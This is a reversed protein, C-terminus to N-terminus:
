GLVDRVLDSVAVCRERWVVKEDATRHAVVTLQHNVTPKSQWFSWAGTDLGTRPDAALLPALYRDLPPLGRAIGAGEAKALAEKATWLTFFLERRREEPERQLRNVELATFSTRAISMADVALRLDEVDIGIPNETTVTAAVIKAAHAVNFQLSCDLSTRLRPKGRSMREFTWGGSPATAVDSLMHRLLTRGTAFLWQDELRRRQLLERQEELTLRSALPQLTNEWGPEALTYAIAIQRRSAETRDVSLSAM